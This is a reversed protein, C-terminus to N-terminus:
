SVIIEVPFQGRHHQKAQSNTQLNISSKKVVRLTQRTNTKLSSKEIHESFDHGKPRKQVSCHFASTSSLSNIKQSSCSFFTSYSKGELPFVEKFHLSRKSTNIGKTKQQISLDSQRQAIVFILARILKQLLNLRFPYQPTTQAKHSPTGFFQQAIWRLADSCIFKSLRYPFKRDWESHGCPTKKRKSM